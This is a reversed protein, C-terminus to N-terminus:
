GGKSMIKVRPFAGRSTITVEAELVCEYKDLVAHLESGCADIRAQIQKKLEEKLDRSSVKEKTVKKRVM